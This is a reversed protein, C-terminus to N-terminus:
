AHDGEMKRETVEQDEAEYEFEEREYDTIKQRKLSALYRKEQAAVDDRIEIWGAPHIIRVGTAKM